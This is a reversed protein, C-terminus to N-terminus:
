KEISEVHSPLGSHFDKYKSVQESDEIQLDSDIIEAAYESTCLKEVFTDIDEEILSYTLKMEM